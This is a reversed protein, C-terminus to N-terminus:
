KLQFLHGQRALNAKKLAELHQEQLDQMKNIQDLVLQELYTEYSGANHDSYNYMRVLDAASFKEM